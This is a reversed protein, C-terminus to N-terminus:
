RSPPPSVRGRTTNPKVLELNGDLHLRLKMPPMGPGLLHRECELAVFDGKAGAPPVHYTYSPKDGISKDVPCRLVSPNKLYDKKLIELDPPYSNNVDHYRRIADGVAAMNERCKILSHVSPMRAVYVLLIVFALCLLAAVIACGKVPKSCGSRPTLDNNDLAM